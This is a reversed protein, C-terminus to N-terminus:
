LKAVPNSACTALQNALLCIRFTAVIPPFIASPNDAASVAGARRAISACTTITPSLSRVIARELKKRLSPPVMRLLPSMLSNM